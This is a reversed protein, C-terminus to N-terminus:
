AVRPPTSISPLLLTGSEGALALVVNMLAVIAVPLVVVVLLSVEQFLDM